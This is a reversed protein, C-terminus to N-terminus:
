NVITCREKKSSLENCYSQQVQFGWMSANAKSLVVNKFQDEFKDSHIYTAKKCRQQQIRQIKM